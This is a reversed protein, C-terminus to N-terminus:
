DYIGGGIKQRTPNTSLKDRMQADIDMEYNLKDIPNNLDYQYSNGFSDRYCRRGNEFIPELIM